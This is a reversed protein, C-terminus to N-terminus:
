SRNQRALFEMRKQELRLFRELDVEPKPINKGPDVKAAKKHDQIMKEIIHNAPKPKKSQYYGAWYGNHVALCQQDFLYEQYGDIFARFMPINMELVQEPM